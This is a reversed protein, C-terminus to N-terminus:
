QCKYSDIPTFPARGTADRWDDNRNGVLRGELVATKGYRACHAEAAGKTSTLAIAPRQVMVSNEDGSLVSNCGTLAITALVLLTLRSTM